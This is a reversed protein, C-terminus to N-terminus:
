VKDRMVKAIQALLRRLERRQDRPLCDQAALKQCWVLLASLALELRTNM